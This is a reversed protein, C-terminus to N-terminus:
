LSKSLLILIDAHAATVSKGSQASVHIRFAGYAGNTRQQCMSNAIGAQDVWRNVLACLSARTVIVTFPHSIM